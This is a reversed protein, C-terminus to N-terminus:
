LICSKILAFVLTFSLVAIPINCDSRLYGTITYQSSILRRGSAMKRTLRYFLYYVGSGVLFGWTLGVLIDGPFHVGLYLRTWCNTLSWIILATSLLRSRVLWCFFIAISFTNSAHASFFGYKGGRYGDVVDVLSGIVPDHTPRWRAVTPKVILDDVSGALLVCLGAAGVIMLVKRFSDNNRVVVVLLSIYLPLWTLTTTLVRAVRDLYLSDSGNVSLLADRDISELVPLLGQADILVELLGGMM